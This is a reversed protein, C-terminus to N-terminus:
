LLIDILSYCYSCLLSLATSFACCHSACPCCCSWTLFKTFLSCKHSCLLLLSLPILHFHLLSTHHLATIFICCHSHPSPLVAIAYYCSCPFSFTAILSCCHSPLSPLVLMCCYSCLLSLAAILHYHYSHLIPCCCYSCPTVATCCPLNYCCSCSLLFPAILTPDLATILSCYYCPLLSLLAAISCYSTALLAHCHSSPSSFLAVPPCHACHHSCLLPLSALAAVLIYSILAHFAAIHTIACCQSCSTLIYCHPLLIITILACCYTLLSSLAAVLATILSCHYPLLSSLATILSCCHSLLSLLTHHTSFAAILTYCCSATLHCCSHSFSSISLACCLLLHATVVA